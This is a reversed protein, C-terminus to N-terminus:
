DYFETLKEIYTKLDAEPMSTLAHKANEFYLVKCGVKKAFKRQPKVRVVTDKGAIVMLLETNINKITKKNLIDEIVRLAEHMWRNTGASNRYRPENIRMNLNYYFREHSADSSNEAKADPNFHSSFKFRANWGFKNAEGEVLKKLVFRPLSVCVPYIMPASLVTKKVPTDFNSLYLISVAGGLSHSYLHIPTNDCNPTVISRIYCDLDKAYDNYSNIHTLETDPVERHSFGHGRADYMFVNYGLNAFYWCLEYYKKLFETYGHVIVISGRPNEVKMYEYYIEADDYSKFYGSVLHNGLTDTIYKIKETYESEKIIKLSNTPSYLM